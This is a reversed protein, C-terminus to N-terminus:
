SRAMARYGFSSSERIAVLEDHIALLEDVRHACTHRALVTARGREAMRRAADPDDLLARLHGRMEAGDRAVLFDEGPTFLGEADDWPASVLPIGCALAEFV